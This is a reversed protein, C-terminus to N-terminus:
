FYKLLHDVVVWQDVNGELYSGNIIINGQNDAIDWTEGPYFDTTVTIDIHAETEISHEIVVNINNDSTNTDGELVVNFEVNTSNLPLETLTVQESELTSLSGSWDYTNFM